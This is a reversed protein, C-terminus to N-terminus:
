CLFHANQQMSRGECHDAFQLHVEVLLHHELRSNSGPTEDCFCQMSEVLDSAKMVFNLAIQHTERM